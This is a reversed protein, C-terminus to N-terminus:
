TSIMLMVLARFGSSWSTSVHDRSAGNNKIHNAFLGADSGYTYAGGVLKPSEPISTVDM